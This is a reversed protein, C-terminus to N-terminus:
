LFFWKYKEPSKEIAQEMDNLFTDSDIQTSKNLNVDDNNKETQTYKELYNNTNDKDDTDCNNIAKIISKHILTNSIDNANFFKIDFINFKKYYFILASGFFISSSIFTIIKYM